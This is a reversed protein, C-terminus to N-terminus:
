ATKILFDGWQDAIAKAIGPYTKSRLEARQGKKNFPDPSCRNQGSDTQNGWRYAFDGNPKTILRPPFYNKEYHTLKPFCKLWLCTSKSANDGFKWPHIIQDPKRFYRSMIGIPNEIAINKIGCNWLSMFFEYANARAQRREQGVLTGQKIKQHYPGDKYAWEASCTLYTCDPFLIAANWGDGICIKDGNQCILINGKLMTLSGGNIATFIDMQLHWEPHNGSCPKKDCSFAKFGLKRLEITVAQSEECGILIYIDEAKM